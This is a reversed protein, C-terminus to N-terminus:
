NRLCLKYKGVEKSGSLIGIAIDIILNEDIDTLCRNNKCTKMQDTGYCFQCPLPAFYYYSQNSYPAHTTPESCSFLTLTATGVAAAIHMLGTDGGIILKCQMCESASEILNTKGLLNIWSAKQYGLEEYREKEKAGGLLVISYGKKEFAEGVSIYKELPWTKQPISTGICLGICSKPLKYPAEPCVLYPEFFTFTPNLGLLVDNNQKVVHDWCDVQVNVYKSNIKSLRSLKPGAVRKAGFAIAMFEMSQQRSHLSCIMYDYHEKRIAQISKLLALKSARFDVIHIKNVNTDLKFLSKYTEKNLALAIYATPDYARVSKILGTYQVIDGIGHHIELLYKM